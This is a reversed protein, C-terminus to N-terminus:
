IIALRFYGRNLDMEASNICFMINLLLLVWMGTPGYPLSM